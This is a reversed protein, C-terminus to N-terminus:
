LWALEREQRMVIEVRMSGIEILSAFDGSPNQCCLAKFLRCAPLESVSNSVSSWRKMWSSHYVDPEDPSLLFGAEIIMVLNEHASDFNPSKISRYCHVRADLSVDIFTDSECIKYYTALGRKARSRIWTEAESLNGNLMTLARVEVKSLPSVNRPTSIM